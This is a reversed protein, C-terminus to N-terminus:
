PHILDHFSILRIHNQALLGPVEPSTLIRLEEERSQHLRTPMARLQADDYGPHCVLEWTGEPIHQIMDRFLSPYCKGTSVVGFSGDPSIMGADRVMRRFARRFANLTGVGLWRTLLGFKQSLLGLRMPEFPNRIAPVGCATAARLLPQLVQPFMHVHKHTDLHTVHIGAQQLKRIQATVEAEVEEPIIRGSLAAAAFSGWGTRFSRQAGELLSTVEQVPCLPSGAILVVHCGVSLRPVSQALRVAEDFEAGRAMLTASTVTAARQAEVIARNIGHTFGFDDANVIL